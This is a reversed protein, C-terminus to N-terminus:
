LLKGGLAAFHEWFAPASKQVCDCDDIMVPGACICSAVALSMAMRHDHFTEAYGGRLAGMGHITFDDEELTISGGLAQMTRAIASLRDCEKMRLRAAHTFRTDGVAGCAAIALAPGLDPIDALDIDTPRLLAGQCRVAGEEWAVQAGMRALVDLVARDGQLSDPALGEVAVDGGLAGAVLPFTAYSWDGEVRYDCPSYRQSGPVRIGGEDLATQVGFRALTRMTMVIYPMSQMPTDFVIRSDGDLLPLAFLLGSVFQSSVDGRVHFAGAKLRGQVRLEVGDQHWTIGQARCIARYPALPRALLRGEGHFTAGEGLTLTLPLLFRLTSGSQRANVCAGKRVNGGGTVRGGAVQAIGLAQVAQCTARIDDSEGLPDICSAGGALAAAIVARHADSKSPVAHVRGRWKGHMMTATNM